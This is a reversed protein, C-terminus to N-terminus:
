FETELIKKADELISEELGMLRSINIADKPVEEPHHIEKLTYDMYKHLTRIGEDENGKLEEILVNFDINSLGCVQLHLVDEDDALGDFHTTIVAVSEKEKLNNIIAKSIAYGEKPNTGRALEDILILGEMSAKGIVESIKVIEAGFTSLGMDADQADGMSIFIFDKMSFTMSDAPVFLGMQAMASIMGILRLSVTKGGMNAGTICTVGKNIDVSIPTFKKNDKSLTHEVKIHRGNRITLSGDTSLQPKVGNIGISYYGKAMLLDLNGIADVNKELSVTYEGLKKSLMKRVEYAEDEEQSKLEEIRSEIADMSPTSKIKFTINIYTESSYILEQVEEIMKIEEINKKNLTIEGTPRFRLGLKSELEKRINKKELLVRQEYSKIESRINSLKESYSDYLYFTVIGSKEPDLLHEVEELKEVFVHKPVDWKINILRENIQAMAKTLVKLEFLETVSLVADQNLRELTGSLDKVKKFHNRLEVFQYRYKGILKVVEEIRNLEQTLLDTEAKKYPRIKKKLKEGYPTYVTIRKLIFDIDLRDYTEQLFLM